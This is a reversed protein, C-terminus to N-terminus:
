DRAPDGRRQNSAASPSNRTGGVTAAHRRKRNPRVGYYADIEDRWDLDMILAWHDREFGPAAKLREEPVDLVVCEDDGNLTLASWPVAFLRSGKGVHACLSLVAYAIRRRGADLIIGEIRGLQEGVSNVVRDGNLSVAALPDLNPGTRHSRRERATRLGVSTVSRKDVSRM